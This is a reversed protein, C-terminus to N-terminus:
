FAGEQVGENAFNKTLLHLAQDGPETRQLVTKGASMIM